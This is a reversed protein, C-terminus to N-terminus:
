LPNENEQQPEFEPGKMHQVVSSYDWGKGQPNEFWLSSLGLGLTESKYM